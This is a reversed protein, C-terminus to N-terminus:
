TANIESLLHKAIPTALAHFNTFVFEDNVKYVRKVSNLDFYKKIWDYWINSIYDFTLLSEFHIRIVLTWCTSM